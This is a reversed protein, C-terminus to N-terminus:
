KKVYRDNGLEFGLSLILCFNAQPYDNKFFAHYAALILLSVAAVDNFIPLIKKIKEKM